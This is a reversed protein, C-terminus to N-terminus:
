TKDFCTLAQNKTQIDVKLLESLACLRTMSGFELNGKGWGSGSLAKSSVLPDWSLEGHLETDDNGTM